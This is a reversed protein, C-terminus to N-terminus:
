DEDDEKIHKSRSVTVKCVPIIVHSCLEVDPVRLGNPSSRDVKAYRRQLKEDPTWKEKIMKSRAAIEADLEMMKKASIDHCDRSM